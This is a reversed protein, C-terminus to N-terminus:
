LWLHFSSRLKTIDCSLFFLVWSLPLTRSILPTRISYTSKHRIGYMQRALQSFSAYRGQRPQRSRATVKGHSDAERGGIAAFLGVRLRAGTASSFASEGPGPSFRLRRGDGVLCAAGLRCRPGRESLRSVVFSSGSRLRPPPPYGRRARLVEVDLESAARCPHSPPSSPAPSHHTAVNAWLLLSVSLFGGQGRAVGAISGRVQQTHRRCLHARGKFGGKHRGIATPDRRTRAHSPHSFVSAPFVM